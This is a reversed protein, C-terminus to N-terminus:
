RNKRPLLMTTSPPNLNSTTQSRPKPSQSLPQPPWHATTSLPAPRPGYSRWGWPSGRVTRNLNELTVSKLTKLTVVGGHQTYHCPTQM